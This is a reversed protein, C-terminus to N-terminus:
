PSDPRSKGRFAIIAGGIVATLALLGVVATTGKIKNGGAKTVARHIAPSKQLSLSQASQAVAASSTAMLSLAALAALKKSVM